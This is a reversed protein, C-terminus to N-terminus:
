AAAIVQVPGKLGNPGNAVLFANSSGYPVLAASAGQGATAQPITASAFSFGGREVFLFDLPNPASRSPDIQRSARPEPNRRPSNSPNVQSSM